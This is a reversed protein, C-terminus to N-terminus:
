KRRRRCSWGVLATLVLTATGPEPVIQLSNVYLNDEAAGGGTTQSVYLKINEAVGNYIGTDVESVGGSRTITWTGGTPSAQYFSLLFETNASYTSSISGNGTAALNVTYDNAGINFNFIVNDSADRLDFGKNGNRFNLALEISFTQNVSLSLGGFDRFAESTQGSHAFLGFSEGSTNINAGTNGPALTTSDGIFRGSQAGQSTLTWPGFTAATGGDDGTQWGDDYAPDSAFDSGVIAAHLGAVSGLLLTFTRATLTSFALAKM